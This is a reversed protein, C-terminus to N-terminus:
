VHDPNDVGIFPLNAARPLGPARALAESPDPYKSSFFVMYPSGAIVVEIYLSSAGVEKGRERPLNLPKFL